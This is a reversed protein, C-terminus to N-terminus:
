EPIVVIREPVITLMVASGPEPVQGQKAALVHIVGAQTEVEIVVQSGIRRGFRVVGSLQGNMPVSGPDTVVVDERRLALTVSGSISAAAIDVSVPLRVGALRVYSRGSETEITGPLLNQVGMFGAVFRTAPRDYINSPDDLQEIRGRNMVAVFDSLILAEHQDHTVVVMTIGLEQQLKRLEFQMRERLDRDLAAFPEDLLLLKPGIVLSRALATRQQQGGSLQSPYRDALAGLDVLDLMETVRRRIDYRSIGRLRLGFAVNETVTMHPFLAYSQFMISTPRREPIVHTVDAEDIRVVGESPEVFGAVM